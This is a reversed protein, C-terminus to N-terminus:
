RRQELLYTQGATLPLRHTLAAPSQLNGPPYEVLAAPQRLRVEVEGTQMPHLMLLSDDAAVVVGPPAVRWAGALRALRSILDPSLTYAGVFVVQGAGAQAAVIAPLKSQPYLSLVSANTGEATLTIPDPEKLAETALAGVPPLWQDAQLLPHGATLPAPTPATEGPLVRRLKLGLAGTLDDGEGRALQVVGTGQLVAVTAGRALAARVRECVAADMELLNQLVYLKAAPVKGDRLDQAYYFRCPVGSLHAERWQVGYPAYHYESLAARAWDVASEDCIFAVDAAPPGQPQRAHRSVVEAGHGRLFRVEEQLGPHDYDQPRAFALSWAGNNGSVWLRAFERRWMTRQMELDAAWGVTEANFSIVGIKADPPKPSTFLRHDMDTLFIKSNAAYSDLVANLGGTSPPIRTGYSAQHLFFDLSDSRLLRSISTNDRRHGGDGGSAGILAEPGAARRLTRALHVIFDARGEALFRKFDYARRDTLPDHFARTGCLETAPPPTAADFTALNSQWAQNLAARDDHYRVRLWAVFAQKAAGSYDGWNEPTNQLHFDPPSWSYQQGDQGGGILYGIVHSGYPSAQVARVFAELMEAAETRYAQSFFSVAEQEPNGAPPPDPDFRIFHNTAILRDGRDNRIISEPHHQGFEPYANIGLWLIIKVQPNAQVPPALVAEIQAPDYERPGRWFERMHRLPAVYGRRSHYMGLNTNLVITDIGAKAFVSTFAASESLVVGPGFWAPQGDQLVLPRGDADRGLPSASATGLIVALSYILLPAVIRSSM